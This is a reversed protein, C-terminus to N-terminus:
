HARRPPHAGFDFAGRQRTGRSDADCGAQGIAEPATYGFIRQAGANWSQIVGDLNKSIIADNSTEVIAALRARVEEGQKRHTIDVLVNVDKDRLMDRLRVFLTRLQSCPRLAAVAQVRTEPNKDELARRLLDNCQDLAAAQARFAFCAAALGIFVRQLRM